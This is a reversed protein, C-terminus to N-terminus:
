NETSFDGLDWFILTFIKNFSFFRFNIKAYIEYCQAEKPALFEIQDSKPPPTYPQM